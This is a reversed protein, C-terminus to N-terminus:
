GFKCVLVWREGPRDFSIRSCDDLVDRGILIWPDRGRKKKNRDASVTITDEDDDETSTGRAAADITRAEAETVRVGMERMPLGAITLGAKPILAQTPLSVAPVPKWYGISNARRVLGARILADGARANMVTKPINLELSIDVPTDGIRTRIMAQNKGKRPIIITQSGPPTEGLVVDIRQADLASIPMIAEADDAIPKDPWVVPLKRDPLGPPSIAALNWRIVLKGNALPTNNRSFKGLLPFPKMGAKQAAAPNLLFIQDYSLAVRTKVTAQKVRVPLYPNFNETVNLTFVAPTAVKPAALAPGALLVLSLYGTAPRSM